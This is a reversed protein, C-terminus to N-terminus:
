AARQWAEVSPPGASVAPSNRPSISAATSSFSGSTGSARLDGAEALITMALIPGIGPLTRLRQYDPHQRTAHGTAELEARQESAASRELIMRFMRIARVGPCPCALAPIAATHLRRALSGVNETRPCM